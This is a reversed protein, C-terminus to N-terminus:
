LIFNGVAQTNEKEADLGSSRCSLSAGLVKNLKILGLRVLPDGLRIGSVERHYNTGGLPM